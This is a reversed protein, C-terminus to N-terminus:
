RDRRVCSSDLANIDPRGLLALARDIEQRLISLAHRAGAEGAAAVGYLTSRGAMVANAGLALAKVVDVGRRIGGDVILETAPGVAARVAGLMDLPSVAGDLQRGGHNSLVLADAGLEVARVADAPSLIGKILLKGRWLSRLWRLDDWNVGPGAMARGLTQMDDIFSHGEPGLGRLNAFRPLGGRRPVDWLWRPHRLVDWQSRLSLKMGQRYNRRDWERGGAVQVDTTVVLAEFGAAAARQVLQEIFPRNRVWYLQLWLRGGATAIEELPLNSAMSLTFPIGADAATRALALDARHRSLGNFGTPAIVLPTATTSGLLQVSQNRTSVDVLMDPVLLWEEFCRRNRKLTMEDEAGGDIYEFLFNPLERKAMLRLDAISLARALDRGQYHKRQLSSM